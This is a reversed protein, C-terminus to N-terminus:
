AARPILGCVPASWDSIGDANYARVKFCAQDGPELGLDFWSDYHILPADPDFSGAFARIVTTEVSVANASPGFYVIYGDVAGPSPKWTLTIVTNAVYQTSGAGGQGSEDSNDGPAQTSDDQSTDGAPDTVGGTGSDNGSVPTIQEGQVEIEFVNAYHSPDISDLRIRVYRGFIPSFSSETWEPAREVGAGSIVTTWHTNDMSVDVAHSFDRGAHQGYMLVRTKSVRQVAGLDLVIWQPMSLVTWKSGLDGDIASAPERNSQETDYSSAHAAVIALKAPDDIEPPVEAGHVEIEFVNAYHSPDISDLRIRVYRGFIPSFSSETWEPAREVGAGSVVTTWHTNDMSVDVAHSFDRGAHQGYMLVRTKSVRQVAGLDLVIWQPMSLVTWKSGLDGDIASAPERNSQETDYSSAHAAVITLNIPTIDHEAFAAGATVISATLAITTFLKNLYHMALIQGDLNLHPALLIASAM